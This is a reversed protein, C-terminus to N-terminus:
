EWVLAAHDFVPGDRCARDYRFGEPRDSDRVKVACGNCVGFGCGMHTELSVYCRLGRHHAVRSVARLMPHPGCALIQSVASGSRSLEDELLRDVRGRLGWSGDETAFRCPLGLSEIEERLYLRGRDAAGFLLVSRAGRQPDQAMLEAARLYLPPIGVGGAVLIIRGDDAPAPFGKGLPGIIHIRDGRAAAALLRTGRGLVKFLFSVGIVEGRSGYAVDLVSFPRNLFPFGPDDTRLMFFAGAKITMDLAPLKLELVIGDSGTEARRHVEGIEAYRRSGSGGREDRGTM